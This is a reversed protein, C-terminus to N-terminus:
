IILESKKIDNFLNTLFINARNKNDVEENTEIPEKNSEILNVSSRNAVSSIEFKDKDFLIEKRENKVEFIDIKNDINDLINENSLLIADKKQEEQKEEGEIFEIM